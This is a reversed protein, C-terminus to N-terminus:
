NEGPASLPVRVVTATTPVGRDSTQSPTVRPIRMARTLFADTLSRIDGWPTEGRLDRPSNIQLQTLKRRKHM